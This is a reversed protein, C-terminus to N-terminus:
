RRHPYRALIGKSPVSIGTKLVELASLYEEANIEGRGFRVRLTEVAPDIGAAGPTTTNTQSPFIRAIAWVVVALLAIWFLAPVIGVGAMMGNMM